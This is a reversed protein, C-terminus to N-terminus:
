KKGRGAERERESVRREDIYRYMNRDKREHKSSNCPTDYEVFDARWKKMEKM